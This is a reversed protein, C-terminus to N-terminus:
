FLIPLSCLLLLVLDEEGYKVEMSVIDKFISLHNMVLGSEQMKHMFLKMKMHMRSTLDNSMCISELNIWLAAASKEQVMEQLIDNSLHLQIMSLAKRDKRKEETTWSKADKGRFGDLAEHLASAQSLIVRMKVQWLYFSTKVDMLPLEFKM